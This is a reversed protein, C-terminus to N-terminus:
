KKQDAGFLVALDDVLKVVGQLLLLSAGIPVCLRLPWVPPNWATYSHEWRSIAVRAMEQGEVLLVIVFLFLFTSTVVDVAAKTRPSFRAYFIDVNAHGRHALLYGGSLIAYAGFLMTTAEGAWTTPSNFAYRAIIEFLLIGFMAFVFYALVWRGLRENLWTIAHLVTRM